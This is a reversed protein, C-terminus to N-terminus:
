EQDGFRRPRFIPRPTSARVLGFRPPLPAEDGDGIVTEIIVRTPWNETTLAAARAFFIKVQGSGLVSEESIHPANDIAAVSADLYLAAGFRVDTEELFCKVSGDRSGVNQVDLRVVGKDKDHWSAHTIKLVTKDREAQGKAIEALIENASTQRSALDVMRAALNAQEAAIDAQRNTAEAAVRASSSQAAAFLLLALTFLGVGVGALAQSLTGAEPSSWDLRGESSPITALVGIAVYGAALIAVLGVVSLSYLLGQRAFERMLM